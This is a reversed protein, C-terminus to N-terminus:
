AIGKLHKRMNEFSCHSSRCAYKLYGNERVFQEAKPNITGRGTVLQGWWGFHWEPVSSEPKPSLNDCWEQPFYSLWDERDNLWSSTFLIGAGFKIETEKMLLEFCLPLYEPDDFISKPGVANAIHFILWGNALKPNPVDYKLSGCNWAAPVKVGVADPYNLEARQRAYDKLSNWITEEFEDPPLAALEDAKDLIDRCEPNENDPHNLAHYLLPTHARLLESLKRGPFKPALWKRVFCFSVRALHEVYECHEDLSKM